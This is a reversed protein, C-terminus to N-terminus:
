DFNSDIVLHIGESLIQNPRIKDIGYEFTIKIFIFIFKQFSSFYVM